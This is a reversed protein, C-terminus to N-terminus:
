LTIPFLIHAFDLLTLLLLGTLRDILLPIEIQEMLNHRLKLQTTQGVLRSILQNLTLPLHAYEPMGLEWLFVFEEHVDLVGILLFDEIWDGVHIGIQFPVGADGVHM